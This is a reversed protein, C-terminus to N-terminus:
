KKFLYNKFDEFKLNNSMYEYKKLFQISDNKIMPENDSKMQQCLLYLGDIDKNDLYISYLAHYARVRNLCCFDKKLIDYLKNVIKEELYINNISIENLIDCGFYRICDIDSNLLILIDDRDRDERFENYLDNMLIGIQDEKSHNKIKLVENIIM